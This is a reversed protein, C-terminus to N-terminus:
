HFVVSAFVVNLPCFSAVVLLWCVLMVGPLNSLLEAPSPIHDVGAAVVLWTVVGGLM